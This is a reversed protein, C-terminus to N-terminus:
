GKNKKVLKGKKKKNVKEKENELEDVEEIKEKKEDEVIPENEEEVESEIIDEKEEEVELEVVEEVVPIHKKGVKEIM